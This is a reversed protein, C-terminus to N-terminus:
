PKVRVLRCYRQVLTGAVNEDRIEEVRYQVGDCDVRDQYAIAVAPLVALVGDGQVMGGFVTESLSTDVVTLVGTITSAVETYSPSSSAAEVSTLTRHRLTIDARAWDRHSAAVDAAVNAPFAM